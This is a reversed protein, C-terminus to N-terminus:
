DSLVVRYLTPNGDCHGRGFLVKGDDSLVRAHGFAWGSVDIGRAHLVEDLSRTGHEADWIFTILPSAGANQSDEWSSAVIVNGDASMDTALSAIGPTLNVAGTAETWRFAASDHDDDTLSGLVVSGDASLLTGSRWSATAVEVYGGAQTWRFHKQDLASRGAIVSGDDSVAEPWVTIGAPIGPLAFSLGQANYRYLRSTDALPSDSDGISLFGGTGVITSADPTVYARDIYEGVAGLVEVEGTSVTARALHAGDDLYTAGVITDGAASFSGHGVIMDLAVHTRVGDSDLVILGGGDATTLVRQGSASLGLMIGGGIVRATAGGDWYLVKLADDDVNFAVITGDATTQVVDNDLLPVERHGCSLPMLSPSTACGCGEASGSGNGMDPDRTGNGDATLDSSQEDLEDLVALEGNCASLWFAVSSIIAAALNDNRSKM